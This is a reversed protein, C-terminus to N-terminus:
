RQDALGRYNEIIINVDAHISKGPVNQSFVSFLSLSQFGNVIYRVTSIFTYRHIQKQSISYKNTNVSTNVNLIM